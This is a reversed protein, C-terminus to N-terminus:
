AKQELSLLGLTLAALPLNKMLPGFPDIWLQPAVTTLAVTYFAIVSLQAAWVTRSPRLTAIGLGVDLLCAGTFAAQAMAPAMGLAGLLALGQDRAFVWSVAGAAIWMVAISALLLPRLWPWVARTRLIDAENQRIFEDVPRPAHGLIANTERVDGANGRLLMALTETSLAGSKLVDGCRAALRILPIPVPLLATHALRMGARYHCLMERLTVARPGIAQVTKKIGRGEELLKIILAALDDVHIPQMTQEGRGILPIIPLSALLLFLRTSAGDQGFVVSPQVVTWDLGLQRLKDDAAKKSLHYASTAHDDAGLASIQIVRKVGAAECARFLAAPARHHLADFSADPSERLIGVANIVADVGALRPLWAAADVDRMYDVACRDGGDASRRHSCAIVEHGRAALATALASGIFGTAGTILIRM